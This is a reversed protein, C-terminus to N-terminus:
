CRPSEANTIAGAVAVVTAPAVAITSTHHHPGAVRVQPGTLLGISGGVSTCLSHAYAALVLANSFAGILYFHLFWSQPV